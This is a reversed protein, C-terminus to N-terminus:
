NRGAAASRQRLKISKPHDLEHCDAVSRFEHAWRRPHTADHVWRLDDVLMVDHGRDELLTVIEAVEFLSEYETDALQKELRQCQAKTLLCGAPCRRGKADILLNGTRDRSKSGQEMLFNVVKDFTKQKSM